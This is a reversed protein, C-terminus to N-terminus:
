IILDKSAHHHANNPETVTNM